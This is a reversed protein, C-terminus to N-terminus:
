ASSPMRSGRQDRPSPSTYLLCTFSDGVNSITVVEGNLTISGGTIGAPGITLNSTSIENGEIFFNNTGEGITQEIPVPEDKKLFTYQTNTDIDVLSSLSTTKIVGDTSSMILDTGIFDFCYQTDEDELFELSFLDDRENPMYPGCPFLEPNDEFTRSM